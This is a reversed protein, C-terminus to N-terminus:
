KKPFVDELHSFNRWLKINGGSWEFLFDELDSESCNAIKHHGDKLHFILNFYNGIKCVSIYDVFDINVIRDKLDLFM